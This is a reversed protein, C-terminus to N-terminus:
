AKVQTETRSPADKTRQKEEITLAGGRRMPGRRAPFVPREGGYHNPAGAPQSVPREQGSQLACDRGIVCYAGAVSEEFGRLAHRRLIPLLPLAVIELERKLRCRLVHLERGLLTAASLTCGVTCRVPTM